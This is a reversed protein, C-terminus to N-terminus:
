ILQWRPSMKGVAAPPDPGKHEESFYSSWNFALWALTNKQLCSLQMEPGYVREFSWKLPLCYKHKPGAHGALFGTQCLKTLRTLSTKALTEHAMTFAM